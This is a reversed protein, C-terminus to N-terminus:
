GGVTFDGSCCVGNPTCVLLVYTGNPLPQTLKVNLRVIEHPDFIGPNTLEAVIDFSLSEISPYYTETWGEPKGYLFVDFKSFGKFRTMGGNKVDAVVSQTTNDYYVDLIYIKTNIIDVARDVAKKYELSTMETLTYSGSAFVYAVAIILAISIISAIVTDFGM